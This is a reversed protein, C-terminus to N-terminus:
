IKGNGYDISKLVGESRDYFLQFTGTMGSMRNKLITFDVTNKEEEDEALQNRSLGWIDTSFKWMSRSGAFQGAYVKGGAGHDKGTQPNNLHNVHFVTLDLKNRMKRLDMMANGLFTNADSPNLHEVLASIPDLFFFKVGDMRMYKIASVIDPWDVYSDPNFFYISDKLSAKLEKAKKVDYKCDPLHIPKQMISGILKKLSLEPTEEMDFVGIKEGHNYILHRQLQHILTTKGAGPGAGIGIVRKTTLGYTYRTLEAYPYDLGWETPDLASDEISDVTLISTPRYITPNFFASIFEDVKGAKLMDSADKESLDLYAVKDLGLWDTMAEITAMGAEDMDLCLLIDEYKSFFKHKDLVPKDIVGKGDKGISAGTPLSIFDVHTQPYKDLVMKRAAVYDEEGETVVLKKYGKCLAQGFLDCGKFDGVTYFEKSDVCRVKYATLKGGKTYPYFVKEITSGDATSLGYRIGATKNDALSTHRAPNAVQPLTKIFDITLKSNAPKAEEVEEETESSDTAGSAPIKYTCRNCYKGGDKFIILHNGTKDRGKLRCAPCPESGVINNEKGM